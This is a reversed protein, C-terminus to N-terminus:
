KLINTKYAAIMTAIHKVEKIEKDFISNGFLRVDQSLSIFNHRDYSEPIGGVGAISDDNLYKLLEIFTNNKVIVDSDVFIVVKNKVERLGSNRAAAPGKKNESLLKM